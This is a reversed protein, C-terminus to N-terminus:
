RRATVRDRLAQRALLHGQRWELRERAEASPKFRRERWEIEAPIDLDPESAEAADTTRARELPAEIQAEVRRRDTAHARM